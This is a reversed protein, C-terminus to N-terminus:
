PLYIFELLKLGELIYVKMVAKATSMVFIEFGSMCLIHSFLNGGNEVISVESTVWSTRAIYSAPLVM